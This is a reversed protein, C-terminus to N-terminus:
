NVSVRLDGTRPLVAPAPRLNWVLGMWKFVVLTYYTPDFEYWRFGNRAATPYRHHNNHWGEGLTIVALVPNNRSTDTTEYRRSGWVHSLSNITFTGHWLLVTSLCVGWFFAHVGGFATVAVAFVLFPVQWYRNLWVLEPFKMLDKVRETVTAEHEDSLIWGAHSWWFGKKPTHVDEPQDSYQHHIRHHAGWWLVGKQSSTQAMFALFFQFPRTTQYTKHSFYRHYGGTVFFMRVFYLGLCLALDQGRFPLFFVGLALLHLIWFPLTSPNFFSKM